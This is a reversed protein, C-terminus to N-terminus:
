AGRKAAKTRHAHRSELRRFVEDVPVSSRKDAMSAKVEQRLWEDVVADRRDLTRLVESANEYNGSELNRQLSAQQTGLNVSIAKSTAM